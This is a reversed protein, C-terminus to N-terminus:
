REAKMSSQAAESVTAEVDIVKGTDEARGGSAPPPASSPATHKVVANRRQWVVFAVCGTWTPLVDV